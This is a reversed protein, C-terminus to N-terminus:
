AQRRTLDRVRATVGHAAIDLDGGGAGDLRFPRTFGLTPDALAHPVEFVLTVAEPTSPAIELRDGNRLVYDHVPTGRLLTPNTTGLQIFRYTGGERVLRAHLGSVVEADIRIDNEASRGVSVEDGMLSVATEGEASIIRLCPAESDSTRM